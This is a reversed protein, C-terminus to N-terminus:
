YRGILNKITAIGFGVVTMGVSIGIIPLVAAWSGSAGFIANLVNGCWTIVQTVGTGITEVM